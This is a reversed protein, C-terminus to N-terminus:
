HCEKCFKEGGHCVLCGEGRQKAHLGTTRRGTASTPRRVSRTATTATTPHGTTVRAATRPRPRRRPGGALGEAHPERSDAQPHPLRHVPQDGHRRRPVQSARRWRPATSAERNASHVLDKHCAVCNMKLVAVHARHPILLDGSPSVQRYNTHCKQCAARDSAKSCTRARRAWSCATLLLRPGVEAAFTLFGKAGPEVHCRARSRRRADLEELEGHAAWRRIAGTTAPSCRRSVRCCLCARGGVIVLGRTAGVRRLAAHAVGVAMEKFQHPVGRVVAGQPVGPLASRQEEASQTGASGRRPRATSRRGSCHCDDCEGVSVHCLLCKSKDVLALAGHRSTWDTKVHQTEIAKLGVEHPLGTFVPRARDHPVAPVPRRRPVVRPLRQRRDGPARRHETKWARRSEQLSHHCNSCQDADQLRRPMRLHRLRRQVADEQAEGHVGRRARDVQPLDRLQADETSM